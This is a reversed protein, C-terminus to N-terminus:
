LIEGIPIDSPERTVPRPRVEGCAACFLHHAFNKGGCFCRWTIPSPAVPKGPTPATM